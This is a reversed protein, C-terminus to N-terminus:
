LLLVSCTIFSIDRRIASKGLRKKKYSFLDYNNIIREQLLTSVLLFRNLNKDSKKKQLLYESNLNYVYNM